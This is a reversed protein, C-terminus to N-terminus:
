AARRLINTLCIEGGNVSFWAAALDCYFLILVSRTGWSVLEIVAV